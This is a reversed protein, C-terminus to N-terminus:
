MSSSIIIPSAMHLTMRWRGDERRYVNLAELQPGTGGPPEEICSCLATKGCIDIKVRTPGIPFSKGQFVQMWSQMIVDKGHIAEMGPHVCRVSSDEDSWVSEMKEIDQTSFAEYFESQARRVGFEAATKANSIEEKLEEQRIRTSLAITEGVDEDGEESNVICDLEAEMLPLRLVPDSGLDDSGIAKLVTPTRRTNLTPSPHCQFSISQTCLGLILLFRTLSSISLPMADTTASTSIQYHQKM